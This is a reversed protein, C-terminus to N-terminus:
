DHNKRRKHKYKESAALLAGIGVMTIMMLLSASYGSTSKPSRMIELNSDVQNNDEDSEVIESVPDINIRIGVNTLTELDKPSLEPTLVVYAYGEGQSLIPGVTASGLINFHNPKQTDEIWFDVTFSEEVAGGRNHITVNITMEQGDIVPFRSFVIDDANAYLDPIPVVARIITSDEEYGRQSAATLTIPYDGYIATDPATVNVYVYAYYGIGENISNLDPVLSGPSFRITWSSGARTDGRTPSGVNAVLMISDMKLGVNSVKVKFTTPTNPNVNKRSETGPAIEIRPQFDHGRTTTLILEEGPVSDQETRSTSKNTPDSQKADMATVRTTARENLVADGGAHVEVGVIETKGTDVTVNTIEIGGMVFRVSWNGIVGPLTVDIIDATLFIILPQAGVNEVTINHIVSNGQKVIKEENADDVSLIAFSSGENDILFISYMSFVLIAVAAITIVKLGFSRMKNDNVMVKLEM